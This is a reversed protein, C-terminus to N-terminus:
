KVLSNSRNGKELKTKDYVKNRKREIAKKKRQKKKAINKFM